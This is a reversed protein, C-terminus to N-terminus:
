EGTDAPEYYDPAECGDYFCYKVYHVKSGDLNPFYKYFVPLYDAKEGSSLERCHGFGPGEAAVTESLEYDLYNGVTPSPEFRPFHQYPYEGRDFEPLGEHMGCFDWADGSIGVSECPVRLATIEIWASM